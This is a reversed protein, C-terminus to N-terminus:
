RLELASGEPAIVVKGGTTDVSIAKGYVLSPKEEAVATLAFGALALTALVTTVSRM